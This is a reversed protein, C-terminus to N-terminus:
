EGELKFRHTYATRIKYSGKDSSYEVYFYAEQVRMKSLFIEKGPQYLKLGSSEAHDIVRRLDDETVHRQELIATVDDPIELKLAKASESLPPPPSKYQSFSTYAGIVGVSGKAFKRRSM